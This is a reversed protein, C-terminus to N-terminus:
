RSQYKYFTFGKHNYKQPNSVRMIESADKNVHTKNSAHWEHSFYFSELQCKTKIISNKTEWKRTQNNSLSAGPQFKNNKIVESTSFILFIFIKIVKLQPHKHWKPVIQFFM